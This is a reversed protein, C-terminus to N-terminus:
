SPTASGDGTPGKRDNEPGAEGAKNGGVNAQDLFGFDPKEQVPLNLDNLSGEAENRQRAIAEDLTRNGRRAAWTGVGGLVLMGVIIGVITGGLWNPAEVERDYWILSDAVFMPYQNKARPNQEISKESSAAWVKFFFGPVRIPENIKEGEPFGKPLERVCFVVSMENRRSETTTTEKAAEAKAPEKGDVKPAARRTQVITIPPDLPVSADIHYYHDFGYKAADEAKMQVRFARLATASLSATMGASQEPRSRVDNLVFSNSPISPFQYEYPFDAQLKFQQERALADLEDRDIRKVNQLLAFLCEAETGAIEASQTISDFLAMDMGLQGLLTAPRWALRQAVFVLTPRAVNGDPSKWEGGRKVFMGTASTAEELSTSNVLKGDAGRLWGRPVASSYVVRIPSDDQPRIETRYVTEFDFYQSLTEPVPVRETRVAHGELRFFEGRHDDPTEALKGLGTGEKTWTAVNDSSLRSLNNLLKFLTGAEDDRAETAAPVSEGDVFRKWTADSVDWNAAIYERSTQTVAAPKKAPEQAVPTPRDFKQKVREEKWRLTKALLIPATRPENKAPYAWIKFFFGTVEAPESMEMAVPFDAPLSLAYIVIPHASNEPQLWIQYYKGTLNVYNTTIEQPVVRHVKGAVSVLEARYLDPQRFLQMFTVRGRSGQELTEQSTKNAIDLVHFWAEAEAPRHVTNDKISRFYEMQIGPFREGAPPAADVPAEAAVTFVGERLDRGTTAPQLRTDVHADAAPKKPRGMETFLTYLKPNSAMSVAVLVGAAMVVLILLKRQERRAFWNRAPTKPQFDLMTGGGRGHKGTLEAPCADWGAALPECVM